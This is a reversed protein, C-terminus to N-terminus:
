NEQEQLAVSRLTELQTELVDIFQVMRDREGELEDLTLTVRDIAGDLRSARNTDGAGEAADRQAYLADLRADQRAIVDNLADLHGLAQDMVVEVRSLDAETPMDSPAPPTEALAVGGSVALMGLLPAIRM